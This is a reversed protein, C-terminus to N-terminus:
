ADANTHSKRKRYRECRKRHWQIVLGRDRIPELSAILAKGFRLTQDPENAFTKDYYVRFSWLRFDAEIERWSKGDTQPTM